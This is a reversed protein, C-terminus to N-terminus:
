GRLPTELVLRNRDGRRRYSVIRSWARLLQLGAGGGRVANPGDFVGARPDFPRGDDTITLRIAATHRSFRLGVRSGSAVGGHELLNAVWEEVVVALRDADDAALAADRAFSRTLELARRVTEEGAALRASM